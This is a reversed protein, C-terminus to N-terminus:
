TQRPRQNARQEVATSWKVQIAGTQPHYPMYGVDNDVRDISHGPSPRPGVFELFAKFGTDPDCWEACVRIGRGGYHKYAVHNADNCRKQMMLWIRYEENFHTKITKRGCGCNQKPTARTLYYVPITARKGCACEVRVRKRLNPSRTRKDDAVRQIVTLAGFKMGAIVEIGM